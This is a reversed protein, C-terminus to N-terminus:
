IGLQKSIVRVESFLGALMKSYISKVCSLVHYTFFISKMKWFHLNFWGLDLHETVSFVLNGLLAVNRWGITESLLYIFNIDILALVLSCVWLASFTNIYCPMLRLPHHLYLLPCKLFEYYNVSLSLIFCCSERCTHAATNVEILLASLFFCSFYTRERMM